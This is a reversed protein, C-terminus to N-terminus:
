RGMRRETGFTGSRKACTGNFRGVPASMASAHGIRVPEMKNRTCGLVGPAPIGQSFTGLPDGTGCMRARTCHSGDTTREGTWRTFVWRYLEWHDGTGRRTGPKRGTRLVAVRPAAPGQPPVYAWFPGDSTAASQIPHLRAERPPPQRTPVPILPRPCRIRARTHWHVMRHDTKRAQRTIEARHVGTGRISACTAGEARYGASFACRLDLRQM